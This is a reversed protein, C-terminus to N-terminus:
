HKKLLNVSIIKGPCISDAEIMCDIAMVQVGSAAAQELVEGFAAHTRYNPEMYKVYDMQIVFLIAAEYGDARAKMLENLHKIGRETPADPFRAVGEEELTVGKVEMFIRRKGDEMYLDFRSNGYTKERKVVAEPSVFGSKLVWEAAMDNPVQSDINVLHGDKRVTILDLKTKRGDRDNRQVYIEAGPVLLERCRGTNKVHCLERGRATEVVAVFRNTRELFVAPEIRKYHM